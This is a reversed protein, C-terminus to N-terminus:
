SLAEPMPDVDGVGQVRDGIGQVRGHRRDLWAILQEGLAPSLTTADIVEGLEAIDWSAPIAALLFELQEPALSEVGGGDLAIEGRALRGGIEAIAGPGGKLVSSLKIRNM